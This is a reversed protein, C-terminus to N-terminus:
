LLVRRKQNSKRWGSECILIITNIRVNTIYCGCRRCNKYEIDIMATRDNAALQATDQEPNLKPRKPIKSRLTIIDKHTCIM